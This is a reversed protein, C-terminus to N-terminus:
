GRARAGSGRDGLLAEIRGVIDTAAFPKELIELAAEPHRAALLDCLGAGDIDPLAISAVILDVPRTAAVALAERGSAATDVTHGSRDLAEVALQRAKSEPDVILIRASARGPPILAAVAEPLPADASPLRESRSGPVRELPTIDIEITLIRRKGDEDHRLPLKRAWLVNEGAAPDPVRLFYFGTSRGTELVQADRDDIARRWAFGLGGSFVERQTRGVVNEPRLGWQNLFFRNAFVYRLAEDKLLIVAPLAEVVSRFPAWNAGSQPELLEGDFLGGALALCAEERFGSVLTRLKQGPGAESVAGRRWGIEAAETKPRPGSAAQRELEKLLEIKSAVGLKRYITRLHTRVTGPSIYLREAIGRYSEGGAYAAAIQRERHTLRDTAMSLVEPEM